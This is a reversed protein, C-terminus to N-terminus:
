VDAKRTEGGFASMGSEVMVAGEALRRQWAASGGSRNSHAFEIGNRILKRGDNM